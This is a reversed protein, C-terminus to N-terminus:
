NVSELIQVTRNYDLTSSFNYVYDGEQFISTWKNSIETLYADKGKIKIKKVSPENDPIKIEPMHSRDSYREIYIMFSNKGDGLTISVTQSTKFKQPEFNEIKFNQPLSQPLMPFLNCPACDKKITRCIANSDTMRYSSGPDASDSFNFGIYGNGIEVIRDFIDKGTAYALISNASLLMAIALSAAVAPKFIKSHALKKYVPRKAKARTKAKQIEEKPNVSDFYEEGALWHLTEMNEQILGCDMQEDSKRFEDYIEVLLQNTIKERDFETSNWIDKFNESKKGESGM